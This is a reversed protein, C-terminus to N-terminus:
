IGACTSWLRSVAHVDGAGDGAAVWRVGDATDQVSGAAMALGIRDVAGAHGVLAAADVRVEGGGAVGAVITVVMWSRTGTGM